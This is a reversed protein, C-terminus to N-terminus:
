AARGPETWARFPRVRKFKLDYWVLGRGSVYNSLHTPSTEPSGFNYFAQFEIKPGFNV